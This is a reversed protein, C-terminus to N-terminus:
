VYTLNIEVVNTASVVMDPITETFQEGSFRSTPGSVSIAGVVRDDPMTIPAAICRLGELGEEDDYAYGRERIERLAEFLEERDSITKETRSPLGHKDIIKHVRSEPMFALMAKGFATSNLYQRKGVYSGLQVAQEGEERYLYVGLGHEEAILNALEGSQEALEKVEPKAIQYLNMRDRKYGGLELFRLGLMYRSGQKTVYENALLTNLHNHVTSKPLETQDAIGTVTADEMRRLTEIITLTREIARIRTGDRTSMGRGKVAICM